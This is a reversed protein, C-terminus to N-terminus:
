PPIFISTRRGTALVSCLLLCVLFSSLCFLFFLPEPSCLFPPPLSFVLLLANQLQQKQSKVNAPLLSFLRLISALDSFPRCVREALVGVSAALSVWIRLFFQVCLCVSLRVRVVCEALCVCFLVLLLMSCPLCRLIILYSALNDASRPLPPALLCRRM